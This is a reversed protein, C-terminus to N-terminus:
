LAEYLRVYYDLTENLQSDMPERRLYRNNAKVLELDSIYDEEVDLGYGPWRGIYQQLSFFYSEAENYSNNEKKNILKDWICEIHYDNNRYVEFYTGVPIIEGCHECILDTTAKVPLFIENQKFKNILSRIGDKIKEKINSIKEAKKMKNIYSLHYPIKDKNKSLYSVKHEKNGGLNEIDLEIELKGLYQKNNKIKDKTAPIFRGIKIDVVDDYYYYLDRAFDSRSFEEFAKTLSKAKGTTFGSEYIIEGTNIDEYFSVPFKRFKENIIM